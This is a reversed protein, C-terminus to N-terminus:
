LHERGHVLSKLMALQPNDEGGDEDSDENGTLFDTDSSERADMAMADETKVHLAQPPNSNLLFSYHHEYAWGKWEKLENIV